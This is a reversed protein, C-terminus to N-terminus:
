DALEYIPEPAVYARHPFAYEKGKYRYSWARKTARGDIKVAQLYVSIQDPEAEIGERSLLFAAYRQAQTDRSIQPSSMFRKHAAKEKSRLNM